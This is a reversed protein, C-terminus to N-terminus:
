PLPVSRYFRQSHGAADPDTIAISGPHNLLERLLGWHVLDESVEIRYDAGADGTSTFSAGASSLSVGAFSGAVPPRGIFLSSLVPVIRNNYGNSTLELNTISIPWAYRNTAAPQVQFTFEALVGDTVNWATPSSLALTLHGNQLKFDNQAPSLNWIAIASGPTSAAVRYSQSSQLRLADVPYDLRFSAGAIPSNLAPLQLHLTVLQGAIAQPRAPILIGQELVTPPELQAPSAALAAPPAPPADIGSVIRLIKIVDGADLRDNGNLDNGTLDWDRITDLGAILRLVLAADGVDLRHNGNNDGRMAGTDSIGSVASRSTTGYVIPDGADDAVDLVNLSVSVPIDAQVTRARFQVYAVLQTGPPIATAPLALSVLLEGPTPANFQKLAGDAVDTWQVEAAALEDPDYDLRLDFGGVDGDSVLTLPLSILEGEDVASADGLQLTRQVVVTVTAVDSTVVSGGSSAIVKYEGADAPTVVPLRLENATFGQLPEGNFFWQYTVPRSSSVSVSLLANSGVLVSQSQPQATIEPPVVPGTLNHYIFVNDDYQNCFVLEPRGDLDLDGISIGDGNWGASLDVRPAFWTADLEGTGGTNRYFCLATNLETPFALDPRGDGDLDAVAARKISGASSLIIPDGFSHAQLDGPTAKNRFISVHQSFWSPVVIDIKGDGDFDAFTVYHGDGPLRASLTFSDRGLPGPTSTNRLVTIAPSSTTHHAVVMDLKGDGDLDALGVGAPAPDVPLAIASQFSISGTAATSNQLLSITGSGTNAVVIDLRGDGDLDGVALQHSGAGVPLHIPAEFSLAGGTSTNRLVSVRNATLNGVVLDLLGDGDLDAMVIDWPNVGVDILLPESFSNSLAVGASGINRYIAVTGGYFNVMALDPRGDGDLDGIATAIPDDGPHLVVPGEFAAADLPGSSFTVDFPFKSRTTLGNVTVSLPAFTAGRPVITSLQNSSAATINARMTGFYVVNESAVTSFGEGSIVVETGVPGSSPSFSSAVPPAAESWRM